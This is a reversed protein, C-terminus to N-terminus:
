SMQQLALLRKYLGGEVKSLETHTGSEVLNGAELVLIQDADRVTSLRHAIVFSTRGRMLNSLASQVAEESESDLASTAEDLFLIAPDRLIARAITIRQQQGGSLLSGREGVVTDYGGPLVAVFEHANAARAAEEVQERTAGPLGCAINEFVSTNFLFPHQDVVAVRSRYSGLDLERLDRGDIRIRGNTPDHFRALLDITTTKGAGSPGVLAVTTGPEVSFSLDKLVVEQDYKFTVQEMEVRGEIRDLKEGSGAGPDPQEGLITEIRDLGGLSEMLNNYTRALRKVHTYSTALIGGVMGASAIDLDGRALLWGFLFVVAAFAAQYGVFTTGQSLGKAQLMRKNRHLWTENGNRFEQMRLDELLYAKVTRIGTLMQNMSETTEGMAALSGRSRRHVKRGLRVIPLAMIPVLVALIILARPEVVAVVVASVLLQLPDSAAHDAALTFSRSLVATDNTMNSILEGMRRRGYFRMPLRLLHEAIENRLDVVIRAAFLRSSVIAFYIAFGGVAGILAVLVACVAIVQMNADGGFEFGLTRASWGVFSLFSEFARDRFSDLGMLSLLWDVTSDSDGAGAVSDHLAIAGDAGAVFKQELSWLMPGILLFPAKAFVAEAFASVLVATTLAKHHLISRGVRRFLARLTLAKDGSPSTM